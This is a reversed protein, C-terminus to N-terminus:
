FLGSEPKANCYCIKHDFGASKEGNFPKVYRWANSSFLTTKGQTDPAAVAQSHLHATAVRFFLTLAEQECVFRQLGIL